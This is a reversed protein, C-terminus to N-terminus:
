ELVGIHCLPRPFFARIFSLELLLSPVQPQFPAAGVIRAVSGENCRELAILQPHVMM